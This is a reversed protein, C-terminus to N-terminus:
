PHSPEASISLGDSCCPNQCHLKVQEDGEEGGVGGGLKSKGQFGAAECSDSTTQLGESFGCRWLVMM